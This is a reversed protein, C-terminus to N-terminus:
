FERCPNAGDVKHLKKEDRPFKKDKDGQVFILNRFRRPSRAEKDDNSNQSSKDISGRSAGIFADVDDRGDKDGPSKPVQAHPFFRQNLEQSPNCIRFYGM